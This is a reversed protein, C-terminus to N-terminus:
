AKGSIRRFLIGCEIDMADAIDELIEIDSTSIKKEGSELMKTINTIRTKYKQWNDSYKQNLIDVVSQGDLLTSKSIYGELAENLPRLVILLKQVEIGSLEANTDSNIAQKLYRLASSFQKLSNTNLFYKSAFLGTNGM